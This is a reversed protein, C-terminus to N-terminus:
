LNQYRNLQMFSSRCKGSESPEGIVQLHVAGRFAGTLNGPSPNVFHDADRTLGISSVQEFGPLSVISRIGTLLRNKGGYELVQVDLINRHALLANLFSVEDKGEGLV